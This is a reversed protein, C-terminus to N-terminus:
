CFLVAFFTISKPVSGDELVSLFLIFGWLFFLLCVESCLFSCFLPSARENVTLPPQMWRSNSHKLSEAFVTSLANMFRTAQM